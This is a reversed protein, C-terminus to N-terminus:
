KLAAASRFKAEAKEVIALLTAPNFPKVLYGAAGGQVATMVTESDNIGTVMLVVTQPWQEKIQKLLELGNSDPLMVDLCILDPRFQAVMALGRAGNAAEGVVNYHPVSSLIFRLMTRSVDNDDVILITLEKKKAM